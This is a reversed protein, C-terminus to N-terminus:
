SYFRHYYEPKAFDITMILYSPWCNADSKILTELINILSNYLLESSNEVHPLFSRFKGNILILASLTWM